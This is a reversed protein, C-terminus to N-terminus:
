AVVLDVGTEIGAHLVVLFSEPELRGTVVQLAPRLLAGVGDGIDAGPLDQVAAAAWEREREVQGRFM